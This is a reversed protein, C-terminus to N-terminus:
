IKTVIYLQKYRSIKGKGLAIPCYIKWHLGNTDSLLILHTIIISEMTAFFKKYACLSLNTEALAIVYSQNRCTDYTELNFM